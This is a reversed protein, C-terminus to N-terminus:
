PLGHGHALLCPTKYFWTFWLWAHRQLLTDLLIRLGLSPINLWHKSTPLSKTFIDALNKSSQIPQINIYNDNVERTFFFKPSIHKIRDGKIFGKKFQNICAYNDEYIVTPLSPGIFGCSSEIHGILRQLWLCERSAEHLALIEAHNSSTAALTQKTSRWSITTGGVLFVIDQKHDALTLTLYFGLTLIVSWNVTCLITPLSFVWIKLADYIDFFRSLELRTDVFCCISLSRFTRVRQRSIERLHTSTLRSRPPRSGLFSFLSSPPNRAVLFM